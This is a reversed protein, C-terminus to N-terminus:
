DVYSRLGRTLDTKVSQIIYKKNKLQAVVDARHVTEFLVLIVDAGLAGCPKAMIVNPIKELEDKIFIADPHTLNRNRLAKIWGKMSNLFAQSNKHLFGDIVQNSILPLEALDQLNLKQLHEHTKVKLGTSVLLFDIENFKWYVDRFINERPSVYSVEGLYQFMLDIGSPKVKENKYLQLYEALIQAPKKKEKILDPLIVAFYEAGSKGFGGYTGRALFPDHLQVNLKQPHNKLYLGAASEPHFEFGGDHKLYSIEFSPNTALGIAGGGVLVSYEGTLYTKGPIFYKM